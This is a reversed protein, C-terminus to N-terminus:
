FHATSPIQQSPKNRFVTSPDAVAIGAFIGFIFGPDPSPASFLAPVLTFTAAWAFANRLAVNGAVQVDYTQIRMPRLIM